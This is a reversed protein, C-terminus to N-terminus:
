ARTASSAGNLMIGVNYQNLLQNTATAGPIMGDPRTVQLNRTLQVTNRMYFQNFAPFGKKAGIIWPVGYINGIYSSNLSLATATLPATLSPDSLGNVSTIQQYGTIFVNGNNDCYFMPRFVSPFQNTRTADYVNATVQLLRHVAPTYQNTPCVQLQFLNLNLETAVLRSAVNTFFSIPSCTDFQPASIGQLPALLSLVVFLRVVVFLASNQFPTHWRWRSGGDSSQHETLHM